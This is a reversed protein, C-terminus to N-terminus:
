PQWVPHTQQYISLDVWDTPLASLRAPQPPAPRQAATVEQWRSVGTMVFVLHWLLAVAIIIIVIAIARQFKHRSLSFVRQDMAPILYEVAAQKDINALMNVM